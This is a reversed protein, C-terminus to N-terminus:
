HQEEPRHEEPLHLTTRCGCDDANGVAGAAGADVRVTKALADVQARQLAESWAAEVPNVV